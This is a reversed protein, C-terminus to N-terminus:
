PVTRLWAGAWLAQQLGGGAANFGLRLGGTEARVFIYNNVDEQHHILVGNANGWDGVDALDHRPVYNARYHGNFRGLAGAAVPQTLGDAGDVRLGTTEASNAESAPTATLSVADLEFIYADDVYVPGAAAGRFYTIVAQVGKRMVSVASSWSAATSPTMTATTGDAQQVARTAGGTYFVSGAAGTGYHACGVAFFDGEVLGAPANAYMYEASSAGANYQACDSGSHIMAGGTSSAQTDGPDLNLNTWGDPIWPNGAGTELSPNDILNAQAEVQHSYIAGESNENLVKTSVSDCDAVAGNRAITPLEYCFPECWVWDDEHPPVIMHVDNTDWDNDVGGALAATITTGDGSVITITGSSGDTVNYATGGFLSQPFHGNANILTASNNAGTHIDVLRPGFFDVITAGNTNDYVQVYIWAQRDREYQLPVRVVRNAGAALGTEIQTFGEDVADVGL